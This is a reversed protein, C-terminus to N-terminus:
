DATPDVTMETTPVPSTDSGVPTARVLFRKALERVEDYNLDSGDDAPGKQAAFGFEEGDVEPKTDDSSFKRKQMERLRKITRDTLRDRDEASMERGDNLCFVAIVIEKLHAISMAKSQAVIAAIVDNELFHLKSMLYVARTKPSPMAVKMVTDFRSPRDTFRKDLKEIYNTTALFVVNDIQAEGDLVSLWENERQSRETLTEFDELIVIAPRDPEIRRLLQLCGTLTNPDDAYIAIGGAKTLAAILQQITATKGSGPDGYMIIGRKHLLGMSRYKAACAWFKHIEERVKSTAADDDLAILDDTSVILRKLAHGTEQSFICKYLGPLLKQATPSSAWYLTQDPSCAWMKTMKRSAEAVESEDIEDDAALTRQMKGANINGPITAVAQPAKSPADEWAGGNMRSPVGFDALPNKKSAVTNLKSVFSPYVEDLSPYEILANL